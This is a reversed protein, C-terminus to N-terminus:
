RAPEASPTPPDARELSTVADRIVDPIPVPRRTVRDVYVHVFTGLARPQDGSATFLGLAYTVSSTGIRDVRLRAEVVQPFDLSGLFRCSSEAVIGIADLHRVDTGTHTILWSNVATDFYSYYAVNNVHGYHDVDQWRTPIEVSDAFSDRGMLNSSVWSDHCCGRGGNTGTDVAFSLIRRIKTGREGGRGPVPVFPLFPSSGLWM